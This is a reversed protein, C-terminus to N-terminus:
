RWHVGNKWATDGPLHCVDKHHNFLWLLEASVAFPFGQRDVTKGNKDKKPECLLLNEIYTRFTQPEEWLLKLANYIRGDGFDKVANLKNDPFPPINNM